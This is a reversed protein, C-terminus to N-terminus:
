LPEQINHIISVYKAHYLLTNLLVMFSLSNSIMESSSNIMNIIVIKLYCLQIDFM